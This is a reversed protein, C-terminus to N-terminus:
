GSNKTSLNKNSFGSRNNSNLKLKVTETINNCNFKNSNPSISSFNQYKTKTFKHLNFRESLNRKINTKNINPLVKTKSNNNSNNIIKSLFNNSSSSIPIKKNGIINSNGVEEKGNLNLFKTSLSNRLNNLNNSSEIKVKEDNYIANKNISQNNFIKKVNINFFNINSHFSIPTSLKNIETNYRSIEDIKQNSSKFSNLNNNNNNSDKIPNASIKKKSVIKFVLKRKDSETKMNEETEENYLNINNNSFHPLYANYDHKTKLAESSTKPKNDKLTESFALKFFNLNENKKLEINKEEFNFIRKRIEDIIFINRKEKVPSYEPKIQIDDYFRHQLIKKINTFCIVICTINDITGAFLSQKM